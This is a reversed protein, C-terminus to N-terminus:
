ANSAAASEEKELRELSELLKGTALKRWGGNMARRMMWGRFGHFGSQHVHVKTGKGQEVEELTYTVITKPNPPSHFSYSLKTPEDCALVECQTTGDWVEKWLMKVPKDRFMFKHGVEPKFDNKMLWQELEDPDTLARWVRSIPHQFTFDINIDKM